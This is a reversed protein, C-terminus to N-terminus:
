DREEVSILTRIRCTGSQVRFASKVCAVLLADDEDLLAVKVRELVLLSRSIIEGDNDIVRELVTLVLLLGLAPQRVM